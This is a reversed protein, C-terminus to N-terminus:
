TAIGQLFIKGFADGVEKGSYPRGPRYWRHAWNMMGFVSNAILNVPLDSRITGDDIGQQIITIIIEEYRKTQAVMRKAWKSKANAVKRMDEQIYVYVHPYNQEHSVMQKEILLRLKEPASIQDDGLIQEADQVNRDTIGQLAEQFLEEKGAVYYYLSARDAGFREAIDSLTTAEYGKERFIQAAVEVLEQRKAGYKGHADSQAVSRRHSLQSRAEAGGNGSSRASNPANSRRAV